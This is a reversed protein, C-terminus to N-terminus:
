FVEQYSVLRGQEMVAKIDMKRDIEEQIHTTMIVSCGKEMLLKQLIRFFEKRFVPDMGATPEDMLYLRAKHAVAFAVQFKTWEGRSLSGIKMGLTLDMQKLLEEFQEQDWCQYFEKLLEINQEITYNKFFINEDSVFGIKNMSNVRDKQINEGDLLIEGQYNHKPEMIYRFLTTKGAGNKGVIGLLYGEELSFCIDELHFGKGTGTVHKVELLM